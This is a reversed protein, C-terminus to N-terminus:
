TSGQFLPNKRLTNSGINTQSESQIITTNTPDNYGESGGGKKLTSLKGGKRDWKEVGGDDEETGENQGGEGKCLDKV